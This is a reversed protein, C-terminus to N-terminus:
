FTKVIVMEVNKGAISIRVDDALRAVVSKELEDWTQKPAKGEEAAAKYAQLSWLHDMVLPSVDSLDANAFAYNMGTILDSGFEDNQPEMVRELLDRLRGTLGRAASNAGSKSAALLQRRKEATMATEVQLHLSFVNKADEIWFEAEKQGTLAHMMGMMEETLLRLHLASKDPLSKFKAVREAQELAETFGEGDNKVHIVDSKM